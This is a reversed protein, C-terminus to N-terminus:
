EETVNRKQHAIQEIHDLYPGDPIYVVAPGEYTEVLTEYEDLGRFAISNLTVMYALALLISVPVGLRFSFMSVLTPTLAIFLFLVAFYSSYLQSLSAYGDEKLERNWSDSTVVGVAMLISVSTILGIQFDILVGVLLSAVVTSLILLIGWTPFLDDIGRERGETRLDM